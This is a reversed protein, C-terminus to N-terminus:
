YIPNKYLDCIEKIIFRFDKFESIEYPDFDRGYIKFFANLLKHGTEKWKEISDKRDVILVISIPENTVIICNHANEGETSILAIHGIELEKSMSQIASLFGSFISSHKSNLTTEAEIYEILNVGSHLHQILVLDLM